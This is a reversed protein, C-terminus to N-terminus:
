KVKEDFCKKKSALKQLNRVIEDCLIAHIGEVFEM